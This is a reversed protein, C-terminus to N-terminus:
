KPAKKNRPPKEVLLVLAKTRRKLEEVEELLWQQNKKLTSFQFAGEFLGETQIGM